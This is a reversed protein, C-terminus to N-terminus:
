MLSLELYEEGVESLVGHFGGPRLVKKSFDSATKAPNLKLWRPRLANTVKGMLPMKSYYKSVFPAIVEGAQESAIEIWHDALGKWISTIPGEVPSHTVEGDESIKIDKPIQRQLISNTARHPMGSAKLATGAAFGSTAIAAKGASTAAQKRLLRTAAAKVPASGATFAGKTLLFDIVFAPMEATMKGAKGLKTYQEDLQLIYDDRDKIDQEKTTYLAPKIGAVGASFSEPSIPQSYDYGEDLRQFAGAVRIAKARTFFGKIFGKPKDIPASKWRDVTPASRWGEGGIIPASEWKAM